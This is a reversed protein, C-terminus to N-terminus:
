RASVEDAQPPQCEDKDAKVPMLSVATGDADPYNFRYATDPPTGTRHTKLWRALRFAAAYDTFVVRRWLLANQPGPAAPLAAARLLRGDDGECRSNECLKLSWAAPSVEDASVIEVDQKDEADHVLTVSQKSEDNSERGSDIHREEYLMWVRARLACHPVRVEPLIDVAPRTKEDAAPDGDGDFHTGTVLLVIPDDDSQHQAPDKPYRKWITKPDTVPTLSVKTNGVADGGTESQRM